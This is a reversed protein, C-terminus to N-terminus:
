FHCQIKFGWNNLFSDLNSRRCIFNSAISHYNAQFQFMEKRFPLLLRMLTYPFGSVFILSSRFSVRNVIIRLYKDRGVNHFYYTATSLSCEGILQFATLWASLNFALAKIMWYGHEPQRKPSVILLKIFICTKTKTKILPFVLIGFAM